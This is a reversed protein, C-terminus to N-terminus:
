EPPLTLPHTVRPFVHEEEVVDPFLLDGPVLELLRGRVRLPEHQPAQYPHGRLGVRVGDEITGM